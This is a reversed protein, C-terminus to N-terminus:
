PACATPYLNLPVATVLCSAHPFIATTTTRVSAKRITRRRRPRALSPGSESALIDLHRHQAALQRHDAPCTLRGRYVGVSRSTSAESALSQGPVTRM